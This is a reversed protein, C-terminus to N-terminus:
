DEGKPRRLDLVLFWSWGALAIGVIVQITSRFDPNRIWFITAVVAAATFVVAGSWTRISLKKTRKPLRTKRYSKWVLLFNSILLAPYAILATLRLPIVNDAILWGLLLIITADLIVLRYISLTGGKSDIIGM